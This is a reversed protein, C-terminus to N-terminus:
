KGHNYTSSTAIQKKVDCNTRQLKKEREKVAIKQQIRAGNNRLDSLRDDCQSWIWFVISVIAFVDFPLAVGGGGGEGKVISSIWILLELKRALSDGSSLLLVFSLRFEDVSVSYVLGLLLDQLPSKKWVAAGLMINCVIAEFEISLNFSGFPFVTGLKSPAGTQVLLETCGIDTKKVAFRRLEKAGANKRYSRTITASPAGTFRAHAFVGSVASLIVITHLQILWPFIVLTLFILFFYKFKLFPFHLSFSVKEPFALCRFCSNTE